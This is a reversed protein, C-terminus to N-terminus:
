RFTAIISRYRVSVMLGNGFCKHIANGTNKVDIKLSTFVLGRGSYENGTNRGWRRAAFVFNNRICVWELLTSNKNYLRSVGLTFAIRALMPMRRNRIRRCWVYVGTQLLCIKSARCFASMSVHVMSGFIETTTHKWNIHLHVSKASENKNIPRHQLETCM